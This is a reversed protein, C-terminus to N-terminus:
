NRMRLAALAARGQSRFKGPDADIQAMGELFDRMEIDQDLDARRLGLQRAIFQRDEQEHMFCEVFVERLPRVGSQYRALAAISLWLKVVCFIGGGSGNCFRGAAM